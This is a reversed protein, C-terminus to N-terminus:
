SNHHILTNTLAENTIKGIPILQIHKPIDPKKAFFASVTSPSSFLIEQFHSLDPIEPNQIPITDYLICSTFCAGKAKLTKEILSRSLASHPWFFHAHSLPLQELLLVVGEATEEDPILPNIKFPFLAEGTAKGVAIVTKESITFPSIRAKRLANILSLVATKSTLILHTYHKWNELSIERPFIQIVPCHAIQKDQFAKTPFQPGLYLAKPFKRSDLPEFLAKMELDTEKAIIALQGQMPTTKGPLRIRNLHTLKLRILAAEAIVVGDTKGENLLELRKDITGRLDQFILDNQLNKVAEERKKSSTAIISNPKLTAFEKIVLSDSPDIGRTIAIISLGQPIKEPLDKASHIAIRCTSNLVLDDIEKTFFDTKELTRLSTKQDIDGSSKLFSPEFQINKPLLSLIEETQAKSLPSDRAAVAIKM